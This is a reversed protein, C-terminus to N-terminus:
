THGPLWKYAGGMHCQALLFPSPAPATNPLAAPAGLHLGPLIWPSFGAHGGQATKREGLGEEAQSRPPGASWPGALSPM